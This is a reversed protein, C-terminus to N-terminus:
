INTPISTEMMNLNAYAVFTPINREYPCSCKLIYIFNFFTLPQNGPIRRTNGNHMSNNIHTRGHFRLKEVSYVRRAYM